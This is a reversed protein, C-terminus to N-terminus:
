TAHMVGVFLWPGSWCLGRSLSVGVWPFFLFFLVSYVVVVFLCSAFVAKSGQAGFPPSPCYSVSSYIFLTVLSPSYLSGGGTQKPLPFRTVTATAGLLVRLLCLRLPSTLTLSMESIQLWYLRWCCSASLLLSTLWLRLSINVSSDGSGKKGQKRKSKM